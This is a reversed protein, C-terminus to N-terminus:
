VNIKMEGSPNAVIIKDSTTNKGLGTNGVVMIDYYNIRTDELGVQVNGSPKQPSNGSAAM